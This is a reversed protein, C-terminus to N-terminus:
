KRLVPMWEGAEWEARDPDAVLFANARAVAPVDSSGQWPIPTIEGGDPSLLAPLFRTLGTKHRFVTTLRAPHFPLELDNRGALLELAARAFVEFTVMTSVPNGPLGFFFTDRARGFVTPRGPQILTADFFFEAGLDALVKEVIDHKGVSVGGSILLLDSRLGREMLERTPGYEDKAVPLIESLGGARSVQVALSHVNSNRIEWPQPSAEVPVIEDGTAVIAVRPQRWVRVRVRGVSALMAVCAYDLRRGAPILVDGAKAEAGGPNIWEGPNSARDTSIRSDSRTVHELMVVQDAGEPVPAGTMIEVAEGPAVEGRFIGGARVEGALVFSGPLEASRVAFGDRLSRSLPPYDRDAPVDEALVRWASEELSVDQAVLSRSEERRFVDDALALGTLQKRKEHKTHPSCGGHRSVRARIIERAQHFTVAAVDGM